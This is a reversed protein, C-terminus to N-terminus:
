IFLIIMDIPLYETTFSFSKRSPSIAVSKVNLWFTYNPEGTIGLECGGVCLVVGAPMHSCRFGYSLYFSHNVVGNELPPQHRCRCSVCHAAINVSARMGQSSGTIRVRPHSRATGRSRKTPTSLSAATRVGTDPAVMGGWPQTM